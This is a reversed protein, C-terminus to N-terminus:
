KGGEGKRRVFKRALFAAAKRPWNQGELHLVPMEAFAVGKTAIWVDLLREAVFGFVRADYASYSSVDLREELKGLVAFLWGCYEDFLPRKMVFMNFRHGKTSAMSADFAPVFAPFDERLIERTLDLDQAHHAHVYQSRNTEIFYNRPRPLVADFRDLLAAFDSWSAIGAPGKFHRRYHALGVADADLNKWAWYLATLECYSPNKASINEGSDDRVFGPISEKGAAGSQVPLYAPDPPMRYPKHSAVVVRLTRPADGRKLFFPEFVAHRERDAEPPPTTWGPGYLRELYKEAEAPVPLERGEFLATRTGELGRRQALEGFYHRRGVPFTAWASSGDRCLGNWRDWLRTWFGASAFSLFFGATKKVAFAGGSMGWSELLAREAFHKRCSYLLGLAMSVAGHVRRPFAGSPVSEMLFVDIFAGHSIEPLLLDERTVVSTGKLRIRPFALPYGRPRGPLCIEYKGPFRSEFAPLFREWEARPMNVDLDDDWPIFGGHRLAGLVSGGGLSWRVSNEACVLAIDDLMSLVTKQLARLEDPSLNRSGAARMRKFADFTSLGAAGSIGDKFAM